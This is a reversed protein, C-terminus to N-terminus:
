KSGIKKVVNTIYVANVPIDLKNTKIIEKKDMDLISYLGGMADTIVAINSDGIQTIRTPFTNELEIKGASSDVSTDIIDLVRDGACLVFLSGKYSVMDVPKSSIQNESMLGMTDYDIIALRNKTRSTIYIKGDLYEIKSVNPFKGVLKMLYNNDLEVAWIERTQKDNYFLKTGDDSLKLKECLGNIRLQRKLTMTELSIVYISASEGSSIYALKNKEDLVIEDPQTKFDIEKIVKDDNLSIVDLSRKGYSTVLLFVDYGKISIPIEEQALAYSPNGKATDVVQINKSLNSAVYMVKNKLVPVSELSNIYAKKPQSVPIVLGNVKELQMDLNGSINKLSLPLVFNKPVLMDQPFLGTVLEVPPAPLNIVTNKGKDNKLLKL